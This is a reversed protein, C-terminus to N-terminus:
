LKLSVHQSKLNLRKLKTQLKAQAIKEELPTKADTKVETKVETKADTKTEVVKVPPNIQVAENKDDEDEDKKYKILDNIYKKTKEMPFAPITVNEAGHSVAAGLAFSGLIIGSLSLPLTRLRLAKMWAQSKTM